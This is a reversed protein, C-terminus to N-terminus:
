VEFNDTSLVTKRVVVVAVLSEFLAIVYWCIHDKQSVNPLPCRPFTDQLGLYNETKRDSRKALEAM